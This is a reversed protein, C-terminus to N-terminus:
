IRYEKYLAAVMEEATISSVSIDVLETQAAFYAIADAVPLESPDISVVLRGEKTECLMMGESIEPTNGSYEIVLTKRESSHKKLQALSGDLLINGKGILLIRETLAEIDQM